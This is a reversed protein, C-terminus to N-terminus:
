GRNCYSEKMKPDHEISKSYYGLAEGYDKSRFSENGKNRENL